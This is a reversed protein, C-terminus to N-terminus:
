YCSVGQEAHIANEEADTLGRGGYNLHSGDANDAMEKDGDEDEEGDYDADEDSQYYNGWDGEELYGDSEAELDIVGGEVVEGAEMDAAGNEQDNDDEEEDDDDDDDEAADLHYLRIIDTLYLKNFQRDKLDEIQDHRPHNKPLLSKTPDPLFAVQELNPISQQQSIPLKSLWGRHYFDLPLNKPVKTFGSTVPDKPLKRVRMRSTRGAASAVDKMVQDIRRFFINASHSRYPLTRISFCKANPDWEDDSNATIEKIIKQYREPFDNAVAFKYRADRLRARNRSTNKLEVTEKYKGPQKIEAQFKKSSVHHVYHNYADIFRVMDDKYDHNFNMFDYGGAGAVQRFTNLAAIRCASNFLSEPGEELDPGWCRIGLKALYGHIYLLHVEGIHIFNRGVRINGARADKLTQVDAQAILAAANSDNIRREFDDIDKFSSCFQRVLEPNAPPPPTSVEVMGWLLRIHTFLCEKTDLFNDPYDDLMMQNPLKKTTSPSHNKLNARARVKKPTIAHGTSSVPESQARRFNERRVNTAIAEARRTQARTAMRPPASPRPIPVATRVSKKQKSQGSLQQGPESQPGGRTMKLQKLEDSMEKMTGQYIQAQRDLAVNLLMQLHPPIQNLSEDATTQNTNTNTNNFSM